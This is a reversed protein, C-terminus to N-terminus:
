FKLIEGDVLGYELPDSFALAAKGSSIDTLAAAVAQKESETVMCRITVNDAYITDAIPVSREMLAHQIRGLETYAFSVSLEFGTMRTAIRCHQLAEQVAGQYARILGGTGLLVGGFYRTVVVVADHLEEHLLIELMPRGATGAPEGDDSCRQLEGHSGIVFAHCNHRADWYQKKKAGIFAVAEEENKAPSLEAIFRSKKEEIEGIGGQYLFRIGEKEM